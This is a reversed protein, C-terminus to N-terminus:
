RVMKKWIIDYESEDCVLLITDKSHMMLDGRPMEISGNERTIMVVKSKGPFNYQQLTRGAADSRESLKFEVIRKTSKEIAYAVRMGIYDIEQEIIDALIQTGSYVRDVGLLHFMEANKPNNVRAVTRKVNFRNKAIQCGVLNNEDKGTAAIYFDADQLDVEELVGINTGDGNYVRVEDFETAIRECVEQQQEVVAIDHRYPRLTKILYYALKGGGIIFIRMSQAM